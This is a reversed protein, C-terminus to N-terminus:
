FTTFNIMILQDNFVSVSNNLLWNVILISCYYIVFRFLMQAELQSLNKQTRLFILFFFFSSSSLNHFIIFYNRKVILISTYSVILIALRTMTTTTTTLFKWRYKIENNTKDNDISMGSFFFSWCKYNTPSNIFTVIYSLLLILISILMM